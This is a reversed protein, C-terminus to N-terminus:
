CPRHALKALLNILEDPEIPKCLHTQFGASLAQTADEERVYATLAIAPVDGGQEPPLARIQRMLSYGDAEPMGIDSVLIDPPHHAIATLAAKASDVAKVQAGQQQLVHTLLGRIDPDDDVVLVYLDSIAPALHCASSHLLFGSEDKIGNGEEQEEQQRKGGEARLLPLTVIFTAGTHEGDSHATITGEHLKVLHSAIALGLGLGGHSRTTSSDAQRFRDFIHPLFESSIGIGTDTVTIQAYHPTPLPSDPTPFPLQEPDEGMVWSGNGVVVSGNGMVQKLRVEVQGGEPTFKIANSLLNGVVQQLRAADILMPALTADLHADLQISKAEAVPRAVNISAEVVSSLATPRRDLRLKGRIIRSVDLIDEILDAQLRANREITELARATIEPSLERTRLMQAWGLISNLPTRLEHSLVALFEDKMRNASEAQQRAAQERIFNARAAEAQLRETIDEITGVHGMLEETDSVMPSTRVQTWRITGDPSQFRYEYSYSKEGYLYYNWDMLARERDEPHLFNLWGMGLSEELTFGCIAQCQPNSYTCQGNTDLLFIGVPSCSSLSRFKEESRRLEANMAALQTAQQKLASTKQYLDVFVSVKSALIEPEIPKLLYDVAGLSYGKFRLNDSTSFATLFIIPTHRSRQRQRILSATEFGDMGPMQVDLLIVAFDQELLCRLAAEGSKAKVLHQGMAELIAELAVLNEPHDDV